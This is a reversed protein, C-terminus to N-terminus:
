DIASESLVDLLVKEVYTRFFSGDQFCAERCFQLVETLSLVEVHELTILQGVQFGKESLAHVPAYCHFSLVFALSLPVRTYDIVQALLDLLALSDLFLRLMLVM